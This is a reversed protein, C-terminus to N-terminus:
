KFKKAGDDELPPYFVPQQSLADVHCNNHKARYVINMERIGSGHVQNWWRTHKGSSSWFNLAGLIAKVIAHKTYVTIRNGYLHYRFQTIEWVVAILETIAYYKHGPMLFYPKHACFVGRWM